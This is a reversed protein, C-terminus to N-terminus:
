KKAAARKGAQRGTGRGLGIKKAFASRQEAYNPAVMPYDHALNWKTRYEEPTLKYRSRLYRKLMTLRKGDELCVIYDPKVSNKVPVAPERNQPEAESKGNGASTLAAHVQGILGTLESASMKNASVYSTVIDATLGMVDNQPTSVPQENM